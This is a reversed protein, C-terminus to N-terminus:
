KKEVANEENLKIINRRKRSEESYMQTYVISKKIEKEM